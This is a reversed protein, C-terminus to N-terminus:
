AIDPTPARFHRVSCPSTKGACGRLRRCRSQFCVNEAQLLPRRPLAERGGDAAPEVNPRGRDAPRDTRITRPAPRAARVRAGKCARRLLKPKCGRPGDGRRNRRPFMTGRNALRSVARHAQAVAGTFAEKKGHGFMESRSCRGRSDGACIANSSRRAHPSREPSARRPRRAEKGTGTRAASQPGDLRDAGVMRIQDFVERM